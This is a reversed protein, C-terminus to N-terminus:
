LSNRAGRKAQTIKVPKGIHCYLMRSFTDCPPSAWIVEFYGPEFQKYDWELIDTCITPNAKKNNDVSIVEFGEPLTKAVKGVSGTGSFLELLRPSVPSDSMKFKEPFHEVVDKVLVQNSM